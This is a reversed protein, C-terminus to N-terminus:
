KSREIIIQNQIARIARRFDYIGEDDFVVTGEIVAELVQESLHLVNRNDLQELALVLQYMFTARVKEVISAQTHNKALDDSENAMLM